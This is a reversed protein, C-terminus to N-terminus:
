SLAGSIQSAHNHMRSAACAAHRARIPTLRAPTRAGPLPHAPRTVPVPQRQRGAMDPGTGPHCPPYGRRVEGHRRQRQPQGGALGSCPHGDPWRAQRVLCRGRGTNASWGPRISALARIRIRDRLGLGRRPGGAASTGPCCGIRVGCYDAPRRAALQRICGNGLAHKESARVRRFAGAVKPWPRKHRDVSRAPVLEARFQGACRSCASSM